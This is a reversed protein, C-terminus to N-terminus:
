EGRSYNRCTRAHRGLVRAPVAIDGLGDVTIVVTAGDPKERPAPLAAAPTAPPETEGAILGVFAVKDVKRLDIRDLHDLVFRRLDAPAIVWRSGGQQPLRQDDRKTARCDGAILYTGMTKSDFGLIEAAQHASLGESFRRSLNLRKARCVIATPSRAFGHERFIRAAKEPDHLPVESMLATEAATWPPEKKHAMTLGLKTARKTVWWRPLGLRDAIADIAGRRRGDQAAYERRLIDDIDSPPVIPSKEGGGRERPAHLGLQAARQYIGAKGSHHQPLRAACAVVGGKPYWERIVDLEAETWFRPHRRGPVYPESLRPAHARGTKFSVPVLGAEGAIDVVDSM